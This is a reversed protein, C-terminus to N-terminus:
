CQVDNTPNNLIPFFKGSVVVATALRNGTASRRWSRGACDLSDQEQTRRYTTPVNDLSLIHGVSSANM